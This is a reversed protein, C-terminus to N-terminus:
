LSQSVQEKYTGDGDGLSAARLAVTAKNTGLAWLRGGVLLYWVMLFLASASLPLFVVAPALVLFIYYGLGLGNALIGMYATVKRFIHSHLMVLSLILGAVSVLLFNLYIGTGAYSANQHIVLLAQGATLIIARQAETAASYQRSLSLMSLAQNSAFYVTIGAFGTAAAIATWSPSARRLAALLALFIVGVLAYNILDFLNLLTLGILPNNQILMFWDVLTNPPTAPGVNIIGAGRLLMFEADLNRRFLLAAALASVAGAKYLGRYVSVVTETTPTRDMTNM